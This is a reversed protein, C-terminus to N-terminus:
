QREHSKKLMAGLIISIGTAKESSISSQYNHAGTHFLQPLTEQLIIRNM